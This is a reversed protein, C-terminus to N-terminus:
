TVSLLSVIFFLELIANVAFIFPLVIVVRIKENVVSYYTSMPTYAEPNLEVFTKVKTKKKNMSAGNKM